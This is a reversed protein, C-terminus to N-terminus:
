AAQQHHAAPRHLTQPTNPNAPDPNPSTCADSTTDACRRVLARPPGFARLGDDTSRHEIRDIRWERRGVIV